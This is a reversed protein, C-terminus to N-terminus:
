IELQIAYFKNKPITLEINLKWVNTGKLRIEYTAYTLVLCYMCTSESKRVTFKIIVQLEFSVLVPKFKLLLALILMCSSKNYALM